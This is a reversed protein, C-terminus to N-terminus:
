NRSTLTDTTIIGHKVGYTLGSTANYRLLTRYTAQVIVDRELQASSTTSLEHYVTQALAQANDARKPSNDLVAYISVMLRPLSFVTSEGRYVVHPLDKEALQEYTTFITKCRVCRRRRWIRPEKRHQRSNTVSTDNHQCYPCVMVVYQCVATLFALPYGLFVTPIVRQERPLLSYFLCRM